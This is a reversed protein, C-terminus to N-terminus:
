EDLEQQQKFIKTQFENAQDISIQDLSEQIITSMSPLKYRESVLDALTTNGVCHRKMLIPYSKM